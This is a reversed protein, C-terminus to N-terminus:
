ESIIPVMWKGHFTCLSLALRRVTIKEVSGDFSLTYAREGNLIVEASSSGNVTRESFDEPSLNGCMLLVELPIEILVYECLQNEIKFARLMLIRAYRSLHPVINSRVGDLFDQGTRCSRIWRAEMLKSITLFNPNISKAAETKLSFHVGDITIDTGPNVPNDDLVADKGAFRCAGRVAFEFTKKKLLEENMVHHLVLRNRFEESFAPTCIDSNPDADAAVDSEFADVVDTVLAKQRPSLRLIRNSLDDSM